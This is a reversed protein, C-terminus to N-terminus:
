SRGRECIKGVISERGVVPSVGRVERGSWKKQADGNKPKLKKTIRQQETGHPLNLQSCTLKQACTLITLRITDYGITDYSLVHMHLVHM